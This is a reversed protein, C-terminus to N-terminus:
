QRAEMRRTGPDMRRGGRPTGRSSRRSVAEVAEMVQEFSVRDAGARVNRAELVIDDVSIAGVLGGAENVVPLRRVQADRMTCLVQQATEDVRCTCPDTTMVDGVSRDSPRVDAAGLALAVDRDTLVGVVNGNGDVVPLFGCGNSRMEAIAARLDTERRATAPHATMLRDVTM